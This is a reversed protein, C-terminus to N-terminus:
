KVNKTSWKKALDEVRKSVGWSGNIQGNSEEALLIRKAFSPEWTELEELYGIRAKAELFSGSKEFSHVLVESMIKTQKNKNYAKFIQHALTSPDFSNGNFAQFRGIFGYPAEGFRVSFFPYVVDWQLNSRKIRGSVKMFNTTCSHSLLM